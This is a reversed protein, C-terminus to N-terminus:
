LTLVMMYFHEEQERVQYGLGKYFRLAGQNLVFSSLSVSHCAKEIATHQLYGMVSRGLGKGQHDPFIILLHLHLCVAKYKFCVLGIRDDQDYLWHYWSLEYDNQLRRKQFGDDWGYVDDVYPFLANKVIPFVQHFENEKINELRILM